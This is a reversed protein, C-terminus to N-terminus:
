EVYPADINVSLGFYFRRFIIFINISIRINKLILKKDPHFLVHLPIKVYRPKLTEWKM